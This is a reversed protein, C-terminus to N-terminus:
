VPLVPDDRASEDHVPEDRRIPEMIKVTPAGRPPMPAPPRREPITVAVKATPDALLADLANRWATSDVPKMLLANDGSIVDFVVPPLPQDTGSNLRDFGILAERTRAAEDDLDRVRKAMAEAALGLLATAAANAAKRATEANTRADALDADLLRKANQAATLDDRATERELRRRRVDAPDFKGSGGRLGEIVAATAEDDLGDFAAVELKCNEVLHAALEAHTEAEAVRDASSRMSAIREALVERLEDETPPAPPPEMVQPAPEAGPITLPMYSGRDDRAVRGLPDNWGDGIRNTEARAMPARHDLKAFESIAV